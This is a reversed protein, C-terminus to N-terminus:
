QSVFSNLDKFEQEALWAFVYTDRGFTHVLVDRRLPWAVSACADDMLVTARRAPCVAHGRHTGCHITQIYKTMIRWHKSPREEIVEKSSELQVGGAFPALKGQLLRDLAVGPLEGRERILGPLRCEPLVEGGNCKGLQVLVLGGRELRLQTTITVRAVQGHDTPILVCEESRIDDELQQAM